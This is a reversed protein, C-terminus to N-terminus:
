GPSPLPTAAAGGHAWRTGQGRPQPSPWGRPHPHAAHGKDEPDITSPGGGLSPATEFTCSLISCIAPTKPGAELQVASSGVASTEARRDGTEQVALPGAGVPFCPCPAPSPCAPGRGTGPRAPEVNESLQRHSPPQPPAHTIPFTQKKRPSQKWSTPERPSSPRGTHSLGTPTPRWTPCRIGAGPCSTETAGALQPSLFDGVRAARSWPKWVRRPQTHPLDWAPAEHALRDASPVSSSPTQRSSCRWLGHVGM